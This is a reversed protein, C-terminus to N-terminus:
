LAEETARQEVQLDFSFYLNAANYNSSEWAYWLDNYRFINNVLFFFNSLYDVASNQKRMMKQENITTKPQHDCV